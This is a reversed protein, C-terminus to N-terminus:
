KFGPSLLVDFLGGLDTITKSFKALYSPNNKFIATSDQKIFRHISSNRKILKNGVLLSEVFNQCNNGDANYSWFNKQYKEGEKMFKGLKINKQITNSSFQMGGSGIENLNVEICDEKISRNDVKLEVVANKEIRYTQKGITIYIYLHFIDEYRLGKLSKKFKGNSVFNLVKKIAGQVPKRCVVIKKIQKNKNKEIWKKIKPPAGKRPKTANRWFKIKSKTDKNLFKIVDEKLTM